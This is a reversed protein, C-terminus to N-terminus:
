DKERRTHSTKKAVFVVHRYGGRGPRESRTSFGAASLRRDFDADYNEGWVAFLGDTKLCARVNNIAKSGYFPDNTKDTRYHPGRYLDYIVADFRVQSTGHAYGRVLEAVDCTEICVRPDCVAADTLLALPGRCWDVIVPNLEAVVVQADDPLCDLVAKLTCGMGLGGVLVRPKPHHKLHRCGLQGLVVESRNSLSNMLVLGDLTILFDRAGRQRLELTGEETDTRELIRWPTAM